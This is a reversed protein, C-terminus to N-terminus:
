AQQRRKRIQHAILFAVTGSAFFGLVPNPLAATGFLALRALDSVVIVFCMAAFMLEPRLTQMFKRYSGSGFREDLMKGLTHEGPMEHSKFAGFIVVLPMFVIPWPLMPGVRFTEPPITFVNVANGGVVLLWITLIWVNSNKVVKPERAPGTPHFLFRITTDIDM